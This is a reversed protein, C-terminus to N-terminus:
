EPIFYKSKLVTELTDVEDDTLLRNLIMLEALDGHFRRDPNSSADNGAGVVIPGGKPGPKTRAAVEAATLRELALDATGASWTGGNFRSRQMGDRQDPRAFVIQTVLLSIGDPTAAIALDSAGGFATPTGVGAADNNWILGYAQKPWAGFGFVPTVGGSRGSAAGHSRGVALFTMGDSDSFVYTSPYYFYDNTKSKGPSFEFRASARGEVFDERYLPTKEDDIFTAETGSIFDPWSGVHKGSDSAKLDESRIWFSAQTAADVVYVRVLAPVSSHTQNSVQIQFTDLGSFDPDPSYVLEPFTGSVSGHQPAVPFSLSWPTSPVNGLDPESFPVPVPAGSKTAVSADALTFVQTQPTGSPVPVDVPADTGLFESPSEDECGSVLLSLAFLSCVGWHFGKACGPM